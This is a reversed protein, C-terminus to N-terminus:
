KCKILLEKGRGGKIRFDCVMGEVKIRGKKGDARMGRDGWCSRGWGKIMLESERESDATIVM